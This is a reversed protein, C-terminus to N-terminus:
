FYLGFSPTKIPNAFTNLQITGKFISKPGNRVLSYPLASYTHLAVNACAGTHICTEPLIASFQINYDYSSRQFASYPRCSTVPSFLRPAHHCSLSLTPRSFLTTSSLYAGKASDPASGWVSVIKTCKIIVLLM